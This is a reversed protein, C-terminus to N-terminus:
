KITGKFDLYHIEPSSRLKEAAMEPTFDRQVTGLMEFGVMFKKVTASRLLPPYFHLHLHWFPYKLGDTPTQHFGMTYPFSVNFLNDYRITICKLINALTEKESQDLELLSGLHRKPLIMIEFPWQAWFPVVGLWYYNECIVRKNKEMEIKLYECLMCKQSHNEFYEKQSLHEKEIQVPFTETAWIQGHPHPNSCGMILGRNEFIQVYNIYDLHGLQEFQEVWVDIVIEIDGENMQSITLNHQPSFCIVRCIGEESQAKLLDNENLRDKKGDLLLAPFDNDFVYTSKYKPTQKGGARKNGPCLYCDADYTTLSESIIKEEMGQWPRRLRNPSVLIWEKTLPNYRKHPYDSLNM